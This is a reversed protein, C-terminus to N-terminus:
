VNVSKMAVLSTILRDMRIREQKEFEVVVKGLQLTTKVPVTGNGYNGLKYIRDIAQWDISELGELMREGNSEDLITLGQEILIGGNTLSIM